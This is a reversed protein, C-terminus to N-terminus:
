VHINGKRDFAYLNGFISNSLRDERIIIKEGKGKGGRKEVSRCIAIPKLNNNAVPATRWREKGEGDDEDEDKRLVM